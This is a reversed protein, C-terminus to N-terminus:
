FSRRSPVTRPTSMTRHVPSFENSICCRAVYRAQCFLVPSGWHGCFSGEIAERTQYGACRVGDKALWPDPAAAYNRGCVNTASRVCTGGIQELKLVIANELETKQARMKALGRADLALAEPPVPPSLMGPPADPRPPPLPPPPSGPPRYASFARLRRDLWKVQKEKTTLQEKLSTLELQHEQGVADRM